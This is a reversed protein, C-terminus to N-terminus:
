RQSLRVAAYASLQVEITWENVFCSWRGAMAFGFPVQCDVLRSLRVLFNSGLRPDVVWTRKYMIFLM